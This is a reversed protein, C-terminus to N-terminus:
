LNIDNPGLLIMRIKIQCTRYRFCKLCKPESKISQKSQLTQLSVFGLRSTDDRSITEAAKADRRRTEDRNQRPKTEDWKERTKEDQGEELCATEERTKHSALGIQNTWSQLSGASSNSAPRLNAEPASQFVAKNQWGLPTKSSELQSLRWELFCFIRKRLLAEMISLEFKSSLHSARMSLIFPMRHITNVSFRATQLIRGLASQRFFRM